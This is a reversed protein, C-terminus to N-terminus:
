PAPKALSSKGQIPRRHEAWTSLIASHEMNEDTVYVSTQSGASLM